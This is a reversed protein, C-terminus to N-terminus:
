RLQVAVAADLELVSCWCLSWSLSSSVRCQVCQVARTATVSSRKSKFWKFIHFTIICPKEVSSLTDLIWYDLTTSEGIKPIYFSLKDNITPLYM